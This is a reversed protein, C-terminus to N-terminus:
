RKKLIVRYPKPSYTIALMGELNPSGEPAQKIEYRYLINALFLFLEVKALAEGICVRRGAGFPLFSKNKGHVLNGDAELWREPKFLEPNTWEREDYHLAWQNFWVQTGKPVRQGGFTTDCTTKHPVGLPVLSSLRMVEQITAEFYPLNGRDKLCPQRDGIVRKREEAIKQQVEPWTVLYAISWHLTTTTTEAGAVFLDALIMEMNMDTLLKQVKSDADTEKSLENILADTFDRLNNPDLTERHERLKRSLIADRIAVGEKLKSIGENPFFRLWPIFAVASANDMGQTILKGHRVIDLFEPDDIRYRNGFIISCIINIVALAALVSFKFNFRKSLIKM